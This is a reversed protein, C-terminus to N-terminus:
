RLLVTYQWLAQVVVATTLEPSGWYNFARFTAWSRWGGAQTQCSLLDSVLPISRIPENDFSSIIFLRMALDIPSPTKGRKLEAFRELPFGFGGVIQDCLKPPLTFVLYPLAYSSEYYIMGRSYDRSLLSKRIAHITKDCNVGNSSLFRLVNVNVCLDIDNEANSGIRIWTKYLGNIQPLQAVTEALSNYFFKNYDISQLLWNLLCIDDLDCDMGEDLFSFLGDIKRKTFLYAMGKARIASIEEAEISSLALLIMGTIFPSEVYNASRMNQCKAWYTPFEGWKTQSRVLFNIGKRMASKIRITTPSSFKSDM